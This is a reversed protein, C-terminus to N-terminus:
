EACGCEPFEVDPNAARIESMRFDAAHRADFADSQAQLAADRKVEWAQVAATGMEDIQARAAPLAANVEANWQSPSFLSNRLSPITAAGGYVGGWTLPGGFFAAVYTGLGRLKKSQLYADRLQLDLYSQAQLWAQKAQALGTEAAALAADAAAEQQKLWCYDSCTQTYEPLPDDSRRSRVAVGAGVGAVALVGAALAWKWAGGGGSSNGSTATADPASTATTGTTGTTAETTSTPADTSLTAGAETSPPEPPLTAAAGPPIFPGGAPAQSVPPQSAPPSSASSVSSPPTSPSMDCGAGTVPDCADARAAFLSVCIAAGALLCCVAVIRRSLPGIRRPRARHGSAENQIIM